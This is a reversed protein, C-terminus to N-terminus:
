SKVEDQQSCLYPCRLALTRMPRDSFAPDRAASTRLAAKTDHAGSHEVGGAGLRPAALKADTHGVQSGGISPRDFFALHTAGSM